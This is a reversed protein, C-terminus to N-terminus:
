YSISQHKHGFRSNNQKIKTKTKRRNREEEVRKRNLRFPLIDLHVSIPLTLSLSCYCQIKTSFNEDFIHLCYPDMAVLHHSGILPLGVFLLSKIHPMFAFFFLKIIFYLNYSFILLYIFLKLLCFIYYFHSCNKEISSFLLFNLIVHM